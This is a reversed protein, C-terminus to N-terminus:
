RSETLWEETHRHRNLGLTEFPDYAPETIRVGLLALAQNIPGTAASVPQMALHGARFVAAGQAGAGGSYDTEIYAIPGSLSATLLYDILQSSLYTFGEPFGHLPGPLWRDLDDDRLPLLSLGQALPVPAPLAHRRSLDALVTNAAILGTIFHGM